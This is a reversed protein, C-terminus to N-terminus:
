LHSYSTRTRLFLRHRPGARSGLRGELPASFLGIEEKRRFATNKTKLFRGINVLTAKPSAKIPSIQASRSLRLPPNRAESPPYDTLPTSLRPPPLVPFLRYSHSLRPRGELLGLQGCFIMDSM